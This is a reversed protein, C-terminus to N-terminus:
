FGSSCIEEKRRADYSVIAAAHYVYSVGDMAATVDYIDLLDACMWTVNPLAILAPSPPTQHYLARVIFGKESLTKVLHSGLFGSAGTVLIM